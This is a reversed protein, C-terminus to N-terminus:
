EIVVAFGLADREVTQFCLLENRQMQAIINIVILSYSDKISCYSLSKLAMTIKNQLIFLCFPSPCPWMAQVYQHFCFRM